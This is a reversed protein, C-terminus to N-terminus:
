NNITFYDGIVSITAPQVTWVFRSVFIYTCGSLTVVRNSGVPTQEDCLLFFLSKKSMMTQEDVFLKSLLIAM